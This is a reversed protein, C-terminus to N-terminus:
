VRKLRQRGSGAPSPTAHMQQGHRLSGHTKGYDLHNALVIDQSVQTGGAVQQLLCRCRPGTQGYQRFVEGGDATSVQRLQPPGFRQAFPRDQGPQALGGTLETQPNDGARQGQRRIILRLGLGMGTRQQEVRLTLKDSPWMARGRLAGNSAREWQTGDERSERSQSAQGYTPYAAM